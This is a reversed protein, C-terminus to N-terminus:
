TTVHKNSRLYCGANAAKCSIKKRAQVTLTGFKREEEVKSFYDEERLFNEKVTERIGVPPEIILFQLEPLNSRKPEVALNGYFGEAAKGGWTPLYGYEEKGYKEFLYSWTTNIYLPITLGNISFPQGEAREYVYDVLKKEDSLLMGPQIVFYQNVGTPHSRIQSLNSIIILAVFALAVIRERNLLSFFFNSIAILIAVNAGASYYYSNTGSLAYPLLGGILWLSLFTVKQRLARKALLLGFAVFFLLVSIPLLKESALINDHIFRTFVFFTERIFVTTERGGLAGLYNHDFKLQAIIYTLIESLFVVVSAVFYRVRVKALQNASLLAIVVFIPILVIYVFHLQISLGLGLAAIPLGISKKKFSFIALGLYFILVPLVALAQHSLFLSYQTQEYSIAYLFSSLFAIKKNFLNQAISFVLFIGAANIIRLVFSLNEPDPGFAYVAAYIYYSLPGAFLKDSAASPPGILKLDGKLIEQSAFSDRAQDFGFYIDGPFFLLRVSLAIIFILTLKKLLDITAVEKTRIKDVITKKLSIFEYGRFFQSSAQYASSVLFM